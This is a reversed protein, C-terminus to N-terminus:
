ATDFVALARELGDLAAAVEGPLVSELVTGAPKPAKAATAAVERLRRAADLAGPEGRRAAALHVHASAVAVLGAVVAETADLGARARALAAAAGVEDGADALASALWASFYGAAFAARGDLLRTAETLHRRARASDGLRALAVGLNGHLRGVGRPDDGPHTADVAAELDRRGAAADGGAVQLIGRNGLARVEGRRHGLRQHLALAADFRALAEDRRGDAAAVAGLVDLLSAELVRDGAAQALSLAARYERDADALRGELRCLLGWGSRARVELRWAGSRAALSRVTRLHREATTPDGALGALHGLKLHAAALAVPDGLATAAALAARAAPLAEPDNRTLLLDARLDLARARRIADEASALAEDADTLAADTLGAQAAVVGRAVRADTRDAPTVAVAVARDLADLRDQLATTPGVVADLALTVVVREHPDTVGALCTRLNDVEGAIADLDRDGADRGVPTRSALAAAWARHRSEAAAGDGLRERAFVRQSELMAFRVAGGRGPTARVVGHDVLRQLWDMVFAGPAEVVQAAADLTFGGRFVSLQAACRQDDPTLLSWAWELAARLTTAGALVRFRDRLGALLMEPSLISARGAALELALPLGDLEAVVRAVVEDAGDGWGPRVSRARALLLAAGEAPSLPDLEIRRVDAPLQSRTTVLVWLDPARLVDLVPAPDRVGDLDDLVLLAPGSRALHRAARDLAPEPDDPSLGLARAVAVGVAADERLGHLHAVVVARGSERVRAAVAAAVYSKGVGTPGVVGARGIETLAERVTAVV